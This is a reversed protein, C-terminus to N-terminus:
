PQVPPEGLRLDRGEQNQRPGCYEAGVGKFRRGFPWPEPKGSLSPAVAEEFRAWEEQTLELGTEKVTAIRSM